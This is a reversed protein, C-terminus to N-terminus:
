TKTIPTEQCRKKAMKPVPQTHHPEQIQGNKCRLGHSRFPSPSSFFFYIFVTSSHNISHIILTVGSVYIILIFLNTLQNSLKSEGLQKKWRRSIMKGKAIERRKTAYAVWFLQCFLLWPAMESDAQVSEEEQNWRKTPM